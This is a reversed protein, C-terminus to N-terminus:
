RPFPPGCSCSTAPIGCNGCGRQAFALRNELEEIEFDFAPEFDTALFSQRAEELSVQGPEMEHTNDM